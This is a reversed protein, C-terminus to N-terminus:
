KSKPKEIEIKPTLLYLPAYKLAYTRWRFLNVVKMSSHNPFFLDIKPVCTALFLNNSCFYNYIKTIIRKIKVQINNLTKLSFIENMKANIYQM